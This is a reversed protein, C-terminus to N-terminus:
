HVEITLVIDKDIVTFKSEEYSPKFNTYEGSNGYPEVPIGLFTDMQNNSNRDHLVSVAYEGPSINSFVVSVGNNDAKISKQMNADAVPFKEKKDSSFLAVRVVGQNSKIGTVAVSVDAAKAVCSLFLSLIFINIRHM